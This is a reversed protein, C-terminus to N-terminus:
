YGSETRNKNKSNSKDWDIKEIVRDRLGAMILKLTEDLSLIHETMPDESEEEWVTVKFEEKGINEVSRVQWDHLVGVLGDGALIEKCQQEVLGVLTRLMDAGEYHYNKSV